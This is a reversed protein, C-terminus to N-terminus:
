DRTLEGSLAGSAKLTDKKAESFITEAKGKHTTFSLTAILINEKYVPAALSSVGEEVEEDEYAYGKEKVHLLEGELQRIDTITKDTFKPREEQKLYHKLTNKDMHALMIKGSATAHLPMNKGIVSSVIYYYNSPVQMKILYLNNSLCAFLHSTVKYKDTIQKIYKIGVEKLQYDVSSLALEGKIIFKSSLVYKNNYPNKAIYGNYYLTKLIGHVTSKNLSTMRSIEALSLEPNDEDFCEIIDICRQISQIVKGNSQLM